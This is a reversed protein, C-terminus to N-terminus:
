KHWPECECEMIWEWNFLPIMNYSLNFIILANFKIHSNSNFPKNNINSVFCVDRYSLTYVLMVNFRKICIASVSISMAFINLIINEKRIKVNRTVNKYIM